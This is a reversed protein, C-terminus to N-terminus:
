KTIQDEHNQIKSFIFDRKREQDVKPSVAYRQEDGNITDKGWTWGKEVLEDSTGEATDETIDCKLKFQDDGTHKWAM